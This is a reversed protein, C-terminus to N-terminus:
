AKEEEIGPRGAAWLTVALALVIPVFAILLLIAVMLWALDYHPSGLLIAVISLLLILGLAGATNADPLQAALTAYFSAAIIILLAISLAYLISVGAALGVNRGADRLRKAHLAFWIWVLLAQAAIFLWLGARAIVQPTTLLHSAAGALYVLVALVIFIHPPLRGAPSFLLRLAQMGTM